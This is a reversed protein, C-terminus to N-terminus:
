CSLRTTIVNPSVMLVTLTLGKMDPNAWTKAEFTPRVSEFLKHGQESQGNNELILAVALVMKLISTDDDDLADAGPLSPQGFGNRIAAEIFKWLLDVRRLVGETDMLPYMVAIEEDFLRVLRSADERKMAWLPDKKPHIYGPIPPPQGLPIGEGTLRDDEMGAEAAIGMSQLSSKAVDLGYASSSPGHFAPYRRSQTPSLLQGSSHPRGYTGDAYADISQDGAQQYGGMVALTQVQQQLNAIHNKM